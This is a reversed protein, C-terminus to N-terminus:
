IKRRRLAFALGAAGLVAAFEAAEPVNFVVGLSNGEIAFEASEYFVGNLYAKLYGSNVASEVADRISDNDADWTFINGVHDEGDLDGEFYFAFEEGTMVVSDKIHLSSSENGDVNVIIGGTGTSWELASIITNGIDADGSSISVDSVAGFKGNTVLVTLENFDGSAGLLFTGRLASIKGKWKEIRNTRIIQTGYVLMDFQLEATRGGSTKSIIKGLFEYREVKPVESNTLAFRYVPNEGDACLEIVNNSTSSKLGHLGILVDYDLLVNSITWKASHTADGGMSIYGLADMPFYGGAPQPGVVTRFDVNAGININGKVLVNSFGRAYEGSETQGFWINTASSRDNRSLLNLDGGVNVMYYSYNSLGSKSFNGKITFDNAVNLTVSENSANNGWVAWSGAKALDVTISRVTFNRGGQGALEYKDLEGLPDGAGIKLDISSYDVSLDDSLREGGSSLSWTGNADIAGPTGVQYLAANEIDAAYSAASAMFLLALTFNKAIKM